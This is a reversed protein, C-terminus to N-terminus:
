VDAKVQKHLDKNNQINCVVFLVFFFFAIKSRKIRLEPVTSDQGNGSAILAEEVGVVDGVALVVVESRVAGAAVM